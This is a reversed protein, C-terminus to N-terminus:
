FDLMERKSGMNMRLGSTCWGAQVRLGVIVHLMLRQGNAQNLCSRAQCILSQLKTTQPLSMSPSSGPLVCSGPALWPYTPLGPPHHTHLLCGRPEAGCPCVRLHSPQCPCDNTDHRMRTPDHNNTIRRAARPVFHRTPCNADGRQSKMNTSSLPM